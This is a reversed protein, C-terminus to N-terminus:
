DEASYDVKQKGNNMLAPRRYKNMQVIGLDVKVKGAEWHPQGIHSRDMTQQQVSMRLPGNGTPIDYSYEYGSANRSQSRPTQSTPIGAKRMVERRAARSSAACACDNHVFLKQQGAFYTHFDAVSFNYTVELQGNRGVHELVLDRNDLDVLVMGSLLHEVTVWGRHKVWFPHDDTARIPTIMGDADRVSLEFLPKQKTNILQTVPKLATEGTVPDRAYVLQGVVIKEIPVPGTETWVPTGAPFCCCAAGALARAVGGEAGRAAGRAMGRVAGYARASPLLTSLIEFAAAGSVEKDSIETEQFGYGALFQMASIPNMLSTTTGTLNYAARTAGTVTDGWTGEVGREGMETTYPFMMHSAKGALTREPTKSNVGGKDAIPTSPKTTSQREAGNSQMSGSGAAASVASMQNANGLVVKESGIAYTVTITKGNKEVTCSGAGGQDISVEGCSQYGSPDHGALPNNMIYSYPNLSQSHMAAQIVPDVALFRGLNYDYVRGGMHILAVDDAHEHKTFGHITNPLNLTGGRDTFDANRAKGFADYARRHNNSADISAITSGLRDRLAVAVTETAGTKTVIVPGLEHIHTTGMREYGADGFYRAGRSTVSYTREGLPSYAWSDTGSPSSVEAPGEFGYKFIVDPNASTRSITKPRNEADVLVTLNTGRIVNGNADCFYQQTGGGSLAVSSAGHPGCGNQNYTYATDSDASFDTKKRINGSASYAYKVPLGNATAKTLRQLKDYEYLETAVSAGQPTRGQSALNGFSDYTYSVKDVATAGQKWTITKSQGTSGYDEHTGTLVLSPSATVMEGTIHGWSNAATAKWYPTTAGVKKLTERHGIPNYTTEVALGSPYTYVSPRSFDDYTTSHTLTVAAGETITTTAGNPRGFADYAHITKWVVPNAGPNNRNSGRRRTVEHVMGIANAPDYTYDDQFVDNSLGQPLSAPPVIRSQKVRGLADRQTVTNVAGRADTQSLLEGFANMRVQWTGQDADSMGVRRGLADYTSTSVILEPDQIAVVKGNADSWFKTIGGNADKTHLIQGRSDVTRTMDMCLNSATAPCNSGVDLSVSAAHVVIRTTRSSYFYETVVNGHTPDLEAGPGVKTTPRGLRDYMTLTEYPVGGDMYPTSQASVKGMDDYATHTQILTGSFGRQAQKIVRGLRDHWTIMTPYGPHVTTVRWAATTANTNNGIIAGTCTAGNCPQISTDIASGILQGTSSRHEVHTARGFADYTSHLVNGNADTAAIPQGDAPNVTTTVTRNNANTISYPFYGDPEAVTGGKTYTFTTTRTPSQAAELGVATMTLQAPSGYNTLATPLEDPYTFETKAAQDAVGSQITQTKPLRTTPRWTYETKVSHSPASAGAPMPHTGTYTISGTVTESKIRDVWWNAIDASELEVHTATTQEQVFASPGEDKLTVVHDILNGYVSTDSGDDWGSRTAGAAAYDTTNTSIKTGAEYAEDIQRDVFPRYVTTGTPVALADGLTCAGRNSRTCAWTTSSKGLLTGTPTTTRVSEIRGTLPFKQHFITETRSQLNTRDAANGSIVKRFGQFGRGGNNYMAESYAYVASRHADISGAAFPMGERGQLFASVVPMSSRFYFHRKDVYGHTSPLSYLPPFDDSERTTSLPLYLWQAHDGVGNVVKALLEPLIVGPEASPARAGPGTPTTANGTGSKVGLNHNVYPVFHDKFYSTAVTGSETQVTAPGWNGDGVVKCGDYNGANITRKVGSCGMGTVLDAMGDGHLDESRSVRNISTLQSVLNTTVLRVAVSSAGTQVFKLQDMHYTSPDFDSLNPKAASAGLGYMDYVPFGEWEAPYISNTAAPPMTLGSGPDPPCAYVACRQNLTGLLVGRLRCHTLWM